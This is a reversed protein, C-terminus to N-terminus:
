GLRQRRSALSQSFRLRLARAKRLSAEMRRMNRFNHMGQYLGRVFPDRGAVVALNITNLSTVAPPLPNLRSSLRCRRHTRESRLPCSLTTRRLHRASWRSISARARHRPCTSPSAAPASDPPQAPALLRLQRRRGSSGGPRLARGRDAPRCLARVGLRSFGCGISRMNQRSLSKRRM